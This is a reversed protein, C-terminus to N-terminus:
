RWGAPRGFHFPVGAPLPASAPMPVNGPSPGVAIAGQPATANGYAAPLAAGGVAIGDARELIGLLDLMAYVAADARDTNGRPQDELAQLQQELTALGPLHHIRGLRYYGPLPSARDAKGKRVFVETVPITPFSPLGARMQRIVQASRLLGALMDRGRNTEVGLRATAAIPQWKLLLNLALDPWADAGYKGSADELLYVHGDYTVGAAVIGVECSRTSTSLSPDVWVALEMLQAPPGAARAQAFDVGAFVKAGALPDYTGFRNMLEHETGVNEAWYERFHKESLNARNDDSFCRSYRFSFKRQQHEGLLIWRLIPTDVPTTSIVGRIESGDPARKRFGDLVNDLAAMAHPGFAAPDDIWLRSCQSGRSEDISEASFIRARSGNPWRLVGGAKSKKWDLKVWPPATALLGSEDEVMTAQARAHTPGFLHIMVGPIRMAEEHVWEAASRTKGGGKGGIFVSFTHEEDPPLQGVGTIAGPERVDPRAWFERWCFRLAAVQRRTLRKM